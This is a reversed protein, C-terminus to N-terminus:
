RRPELSTTFIAERFRGGVPSTALAFVPVIRGGAFATSFYDGVMRGGEARPLWTMQVPQADLRQPTTWSKGGDGSETFAVGLTCAGRGCSRPHFYAYVLALHGPRAPDAGLGPIFASLTSSPAAVPIRGPATWTAGDASTSLVLDNATCGPRFRCDHWVAYITGNSDVDVSPLSLARMPGNSASQLDAITFRQWHAGGDASRVAVIAGDLGSDGRYDGAVVVLTGNPQVVPQTGVLLGAAQVPASWTQGGDDSSQSVTVNKDDDTYELYCRGKFPSSAGNDCAIWEKDLIPGEAATVPASWHVGDTSRSVDVFSGGQHLTLSSVLWVGHVSDFAVTPDSAAAETGGSNVTLRPLVSRQWTRGLDHSVAAGINAAAGGARRGLQYVAVVTTGWAVDDPEVATEHQSDGNAYPDVSVRRSVIECDPGVRDSADASVVDAGRGCAVKQVGGFAAQLLDNGATGRITAAAATSAVVLALVLIPAARRV